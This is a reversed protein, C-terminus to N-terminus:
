SAVPQGYIVVGTVAFELVSVGLRNFLERMDDDFRDTRPGLRIRALTSTSHLFELYEDVTRRLMVPATRHEGRRLFLGAGEIEAILGSLDDHHAPVPEGTLRSIRQEEYRKIIEISQERWPPSEDDIELVAVTAGPALSAAFRPMVVRADMWHLSAGATILGYPPDFPASEAPGHIWRLRRDDGAPLQRGQHIMAESPDVADVRDAFSLMRRALAGTGAGVDLVTRPGVLLSNLIDFTQAPYPARQRYASAVEPDRFVDGLMM